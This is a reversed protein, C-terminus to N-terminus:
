YKAPTGPKAISNKIFERLQDTATALDEKRLYMMHGSRFGKWTMRDKLKGSPDMQWMSYKANFYDCAGDFYGSQVMLHLYPNEAMAQRLNEGTQDNKDDWPFVPGFMNYKLDTKYGLEERLYINIAPTFAHLWSSLEANYDPSEGADQRDIGKYRSDL